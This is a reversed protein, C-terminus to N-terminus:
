SCFANYAHRLEYHADITRGTVECFLKLAEEIKDQELLVFAELLKEQKEKNRLIPYFMKDLIKPYIM